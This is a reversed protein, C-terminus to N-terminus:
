ETLRENLNRIKRYIFKMKKRLLSQLEEQQEQSLGFLDSQYVKIEKSTEELIRKIDRVIGHMKAQSNDKFLLMQQEKQLEQQFLDKERNEDFKEANAEVDEAFNERTNRKKNFNSLVRSMSQLTLNSKRKAQPSQQFIQSPAFPQSQELSVRSQM